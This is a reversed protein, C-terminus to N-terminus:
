ASKAWHEIAEYLKSGIGQNRMRPDVILMHNLEGPATWPARWSIAYGLLDGEENVAVVRYRDFGTLRGLEDKTLKGQYYIISDENELYDVKMLESLLHNLLAAFLTYDDPLRIRRNEYSM